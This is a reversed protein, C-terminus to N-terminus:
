KSRSKVPPVTSWQTLTSLRVYTGNKKIYKGGRPGEYVVRSRKENKLMIREQIPKLTRRKGGGLGNSGHKQELIEAAHVKYWDLFEQFSQHGPRDDEDEDEHDSYQYAQLTFRIYVDMMGSLNIRRPPANGIQITADTYDEKFTITGKLNPNVADHISLVNGRKEDVAFPRINSRFFNLDNQQKVTIGPITHPAGYWFMNWFSQWFLPNEWDRQVLQEFNNYLEAQFQREQALEVQSAANNNM